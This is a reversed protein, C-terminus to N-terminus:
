KHDVFYFEEWTSRDSGPSIDDLLSTFGYEHSQFDEVLGEANNINTVFESFPNDLIKVSVGNVKNENMIFEISYDPIRIKLEEYYMGFIDRDSQKDSNLIANIFGGNEDWVKEIKFHCGYGYPELWEDPELYLQRGMNMFASFIINFRAQHFDTKSPLKKISAPTEDNLPSIFDFYDLPKEPNNDDSDIVEFLYTDLESKNIIEIFNMVVDINTLEDFKLPDVNEYCFLIVRKDYDQGLGFAADMGQDWSPYGMIADVYISLLKGSNKNKAFMGFAFRNDNIAYTNQIGCFEYDSLDMAKLLDNINEENSYYKKFDFNEKKM